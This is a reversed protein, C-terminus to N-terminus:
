LSAIMRILEPFEPQLFHNRDTFTVLEADTLANKYKLAHAYPVVFDDQSHMIFIRKAKGSLEGVRTTDFVFDGGDEGGFDESEFPGAVLFLAKITFPTSNEILYKSLFWGGQSWGILVATDQLFEFHREFWIKWEEYKANDKNPMSPTFVEYEHGLALRLTDSWRVPRDSTPNRLESTKLHQLFADYETYASGGHIFLVQKM